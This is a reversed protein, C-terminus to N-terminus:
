GAVQRMAYAIASQLNRETSLSSMETGLGVLSQAVEASIGSLVVQAGLLRAARAAQLLANAVQADVVRVGTIDLIAVEAQQGAIGELLTEMIQQARRSDVTGVIPLVVVGDALPILPTSLERLMAQQMSIVQEQLRRQEEEARHQATIDRAVWLVRTGDLPSITASFWYEGAQVPLVYVLAETTRTSIVKRIVTLYAEALEAPMVDHMRRGLLESPPLFLLDPNTSPVDIYTGNEDLVIVIDRMADFLARLYTASQDAGIEDSM